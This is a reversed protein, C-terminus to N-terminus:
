QNQLSDEFHQCPSRILNTKLFSVQELFEESYFEEFHEHISSLKMQPWAIAKQFRDLIQEEPTLRWSTDFGM